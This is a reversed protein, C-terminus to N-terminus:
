DIREAIKGVLRETEEWGICADTISQGYVLDKGAEVSQNGEKLHSEIMLGAIASGGSAFMQAVDLANGSQRRFDKQSNAHSCDMVIPRELSTTSLRTRVEEIAVMSLNPGSRGGRLCVHAFLNGPTELIAPRGEGDCAFATHSHRAAKVANIASDLSGDTGNKIGVPMEMNSALERHVQSEVTRAGISGYAICDELYSAVIPNLFETGCPVGLRSIKCLLERARRLGSPSAPLGSISEDYILGKWGLATRPKEFYVRMVVVLQDAFTSELDRLRTAYEMAAEPDHISCPGSLLILRQRDEGSLIRQIDHRARAVTADAYDSLPIEKKLQNPPVILQTRSRTIALGAPEHLIELKKMSEINGNIFAFLGPNWIPGLAKRRNSRYVKDAIM